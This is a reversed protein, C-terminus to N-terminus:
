NAETEKEEPTQYAQDVANHQQELQEAIKEAKAFDAVYHAHLRNIKFEITNFKLNFVTEFYDEVMARLKDVFFTACNSKVEVVLLLRYGMKEDSRVQVRRVHVEGVQRACRNIARKIVKSTAFTASQSDSHLVLCQLAASDAFNLYLLYCAVALWIIVLVAFLVVTVANDGFSNGQPIVNLMYLVCMIVFILTLVIQAILAVKETVKRM